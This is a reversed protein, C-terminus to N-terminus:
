LEGKSQHYIGQPEGLPLCSYHAGLYVESEGLESVPVITGCMPRVLCLPFLAALILYLQKETM